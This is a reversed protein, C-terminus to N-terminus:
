FLAISPQNILIFLLKTVLVGLAEMNAEPNTTFNISTVNM